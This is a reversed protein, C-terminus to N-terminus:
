ITMKSTSGIKPLTMQIHQNFKNIDGDKYFEIIQSNRQSIFPDFSDPSHFFHFGNFQMQKFTLYKQIKMDQFQNTFGLGFFDENWGGIRKIADKKFIVVGNTMSGKFGPREIKFISQMDSVSELQTLSIINNTPIVCDYNDIERLSEILHEPHMIFDGDGFIVVNSQARRLAVNFAWSKNFPGDNKIFVHSARLNLSSIKSSKDQEVILVEVGQFGSLWDIVRRLPIIRDQRFKFPIVYTFRPMYTTQM